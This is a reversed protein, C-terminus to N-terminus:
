KEAYLSQINYNTHRSVIFQVTRAEIEPSPFIRDKAWWDLGARPGVCGGIRHTGSRKESSLAAPAHRQDGGGDLASTLFSLLREEVGGRVKMVQKLLVEVKIM